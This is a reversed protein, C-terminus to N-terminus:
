IFTLIIIFTVKAIIARLQSAIVKKKKIHGIVDDIDEMKDVTCEDLLLVSGLIHSDFDTSYTLHAHVKTCDAAVTIAGSFKLAKILCALQLMNEWSLNPDHLADESKAVLARNFYLGHLDLLLM